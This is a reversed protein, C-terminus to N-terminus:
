EGQLLNNIKTQLEQKEESYDLESYEEELAKIKDLKEKYFLIEMNRLHKHRKELIIKREEYPKAEIQTGNWYYLDNDFSSPFDEEIKYRRQGAYLVDNPKEAVTHISNDANVVVYFDAYSNVSSFLFFLLFLYNM